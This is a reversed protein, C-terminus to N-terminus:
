RVVHFYWLPVPLWHLMVLSSPHPFIYYYKQDRKVCLLIFLKGRAVFFSFFHFIGYQTFSLVVYHSPYCVRAISFIFCATQFFFFLCSILSHTSHQTCHLYQNHFVWLLTCSFLWSLFCLFAFSSQHFARATTHIFISVHTSRPSTLVETGAVDKKGCQQSTSSMYAFKDCRQSPVLTWVTWSWMKLWWSFWCGSFTLCLQGPNTFLTGLTEPALYINIRNIETFCKASSVQGKWIGPPNIKENKNKGLFVHISKIHHYIMCKLLDKIFHEHQTTPLYDIFAIWLLRNVLMDRPCVVGQTM